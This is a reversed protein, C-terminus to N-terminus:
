IYSSCIVITMQIVNLIRQNVYKSFVTFYKRYGSKYFVFRDTGASYSSVRVDRQARILVTVCNISVFM